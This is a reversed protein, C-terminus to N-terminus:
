TKRKAVKEIKVEGNSIAEFLHSSTKYGMYLCNENWWAWSQDTVRISRLKRGDKLTKVPPKEETM